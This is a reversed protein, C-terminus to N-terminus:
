LPYRSLSRVYMKPPGLSQDDDSSRTVPISGAHDAQFASIRAM